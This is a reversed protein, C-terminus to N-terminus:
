ADVGEKFIKLVKKVFVTAEEESINKTFRQGGVTLDSDYIGTSEDFCVVVTTDGKNVLVGVNKFDSLYGLIFVIKEGDRDVVIKNLFYDGRSDVKATLALRKVEAFTPNIGFVISPIL